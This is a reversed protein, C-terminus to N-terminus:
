VEYKCNLERPGKEIDLNHKVYYPCKKMVCVVVEQDHEEKPCYVLYITQILIKLQNCRWSNLGYM